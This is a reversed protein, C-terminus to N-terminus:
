RRSANDGQQLTILGVTLVPGVFSVLIVFRLPFYIPHESSAIGLPDLFDARESSWFPINGSGLTPPVSEGM